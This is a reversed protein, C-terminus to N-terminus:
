LIKSLYYSTVILILVSVPRVLSTFGYSMLLLGTYQPLEVFGHSLIVAMILGILFASIFNIKFIKVLMVTITANTIMTSLVSRNYGEIYESTNKIAQSSM